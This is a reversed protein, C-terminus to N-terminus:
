TEPNLCGAHRHPLGSTRRSRQRRNMPGRRQFHREDLDVFKEALMIGDDRRLIPTQPTPGAWSINYDFLM